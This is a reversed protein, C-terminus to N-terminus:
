KKGLQKPGRPASRHPSPRPVCRKGVTSVCPVHRHCEPSPPHHILRRNLLRLIPQEPHEAKVVSLEEPRAEAEELFRHRVRGRQAGASRFPGGGSRKGSQRRVHDGRGIDATIAHAALKQQSCAMQPCFLSLLVDLDNSM